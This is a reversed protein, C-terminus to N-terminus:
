LSTNYTPTFTFTYIVRYNLLFFNCLSLPEQTQIYCVNQTINQKEDETDFPIGGCVNWDSTCVFEGGQRSYVPKLDSIEWIIM